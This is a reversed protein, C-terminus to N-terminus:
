PTSDGPRYTEVVEYMGPEFKAITLAQQLYPRPAPDKRMTEYDGITQRHAYMTIKTGHRRHACAAWLQRQVGSRSCGALRVTVM